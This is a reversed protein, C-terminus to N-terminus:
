DRWRLFAFLRNWEFFHFVGFYAQSWLCWMHIFGAYDSLLFLRRKSTAVTLLYWDEHLLFLQSSRRFSGTIRNYCSGWNFSNTRDFYRMYVEIQVGKGADEIFRRGEQNVKREAEEDLIAKMYRFRNEKLLTSPNEADGSNDGVLGVVIFNELAQGVVKCSNQLHWAFIDDVQLSAEAFLDAVASENASVIVVKHHGFQYGNRSSGRGM